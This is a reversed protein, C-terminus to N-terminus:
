ADLIERQLVVAATDAKAYPTVSAPLRIIWADGPMLKILPYFDGSVDVGIQVFNTADRNRLYCVGPTTLDALALAEHAAHGIVQSGGVRVPKATAQTIAFTYPSITLSDKDGNLLNLGVSVTIEDAM